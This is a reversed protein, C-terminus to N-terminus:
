NAFDALRWSLSDENWTYSFGDSPYDVPSVWDLSDEDLSWSPYPQETLFADRTEDFTYGIGAFRKRFNGNYSTQIWRGGLNDVLWQHGEDPMGNDTVLIRIVVNNEDIEAFHAM